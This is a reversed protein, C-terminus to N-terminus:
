GSKKLSTLAKGNSLHSRLAKEAEDKDCNLLQNLLLIHSDCQITDLRAFYKNVQYFTGLNMVQEYTEILRRCGSLSVLYRHFDIDAQWYELIDTISDVKAALVHLSDRERRIIDGWIMRLAQTELAERLVLAGYIDEEQIAKVVTASRSRTEVFGELTLRQLADRVPAMSVNYETALAKRDILTGPVLVSSQLKHLLDSYIIDTLSEKSDIITKKEVPKGGHM